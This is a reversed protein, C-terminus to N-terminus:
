DKPKYLAHYPCGKFNQTDKTNFVQTPNNNAWKTAAAVAELVNSYIFAKVFGEHKSNNAVLYCNMADMTENYKYYIECNREALTKETM